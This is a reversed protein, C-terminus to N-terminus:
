GGWRVWGTSCTRGAVVSRDFSLFVGPVQWARSRRLLRIGSDLSGAQSPWGAVSERTVTTPGPDNPAIPRTGRLNTGPIESFTKWLGRGHGNRAELECCNRSNRREAIQPIREPVPQSRNSLREPLRDFRGVSGTSGTQGASLCGAAAHGAPHSVASRQNERM